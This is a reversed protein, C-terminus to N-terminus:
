DGLGYKRDIRRMLFVYAFILAVFLYILAQTSM